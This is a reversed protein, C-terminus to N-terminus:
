IKKKVSKEVLHVVRTKSENPSPSSKDLTLTANLHGHAAKLLARGVANLKVSIAVNRGASLSFHATGVDETKAKKGKKAHGKVALILKGTCTVTGTCLLRLTAEGSRRVDITSAVLSVSGTPEVTRPLTISAPPGAVAAPPPSSTAPATCTPALGAGIATIRGIRNERSETFWMSEEPGATIGEIESGSGTSCETIAGAPTIRGIQGNDQGFWLNGDPGAAITRPEAASSIGSSFETVAGAPTIRGIKKVNEETFWLGGDAGAAISVPGSGATPVPFETITGTPTIRGIADAVRETFWLNGDPGATIGTPAHQVTSTFPFETVTGSPTVRAIKNTDSPAPNNFETFWLNGDPGATIEWPQSGSTIGAFFETRTGSPTIRGVKSRCTEVCEPNNIETFWLNGDPGNTIGQPISDVLVPFQTVTGSPTIRGIQNGVEPNRETFWLNGEPGAAIKSPNSNPTIGTSFESVEGIAAASASGPVGLVGLVAAVLAASRV